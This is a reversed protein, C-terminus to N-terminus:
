AIQELIKELEADTDHLQRQCLTLLEGARKVKAKLEDINIEKANELESVIKELEAASQEYTQKM